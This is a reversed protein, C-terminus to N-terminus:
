YSIAMIVTLVMWKSDIITTSSTLQPWERDVVTLLMREPDVTKMLTWLGENVPLQLWQFDVAFTQPWHAVTMQPCGTSSQLWHATHTLSADMLSDPRWAPHFAKLRTKFYLPLFRNTWEVTLPLDFERIRKIVTNTPPSLSPSQTFWFSFLSLYHSHYVICLSSFSFLSPPALLLVLSFLSPSFSFLSPPVLSLLLPLLLFLSYIPFSFSLFLSSLSFLPFKFHLPYVIRLDLFWCLATPSMCIWIWSHFIVPRQHIAAQKQPCPIMEGGREWVFGWCVCVCVWTVM